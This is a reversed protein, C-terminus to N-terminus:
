RRVKGRLVNGALRLRELTNLQPTVYGGGDVPIIQTVGPQTETPNDADVVDALMFEPSSHKYGLMSILVIQSFDGQVNESGGSVSAYRYIQAWMRSIPGTISRMTQAQGACGAGTATNDNVATMMGLGWLFWPNNPSNFRLGFVACEQTVTDNIGDAMNIGAISPDPGLYIFGGDAAQQQVPNIGYSKDYTSPLYLHDCPSINVEFPQNLSVGSFSIQIPWFSNSRGDQQKQVVASFDQQDIM